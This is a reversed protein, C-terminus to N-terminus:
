QMFIWCALSGAMMELSHFIWKAKHDPLISLVRSSVKFQGKLCMTRCPNLFSNSNRVANNPYLLLTISPDFIHELATEYIGNRLPTSICNKQHVLKSFTCVYTEIDRISNDVLYLSSWHTILVRNIPEGCVHSKMKVTRSTWSCYDLISTEMQSIALSNPM